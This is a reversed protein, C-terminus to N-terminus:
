LDFFFSRFLQRAAIYAAGHQGRLAELELEQLLMRHHVVCLHTFGSGEPAEAFHRACGTRDCLPYSCRLLHDRCLLLEPSLLATGADFAFGDQEMLEEYCDDCVGGIEEPRSVVCQCRLRFSRSVDETMLGRPTRATVDTSGFGERFIEEAPLVRRRRAVARLLGPQSSGNM